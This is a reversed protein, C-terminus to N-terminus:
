ITGNRRMISLIGNFKFKKITISRKTLEVVQNLGVADIEERIKINQAMEHAVEFNSIGYERMLFHASDIPNYGGSKSIIVRLRTHIGCKYRAFESHKM